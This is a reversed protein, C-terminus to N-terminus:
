SAVMHHIGDGDISVKGATVMTPIFSNNLIMTSLNPDSKINPDKWVEENFQAATKGNLITLAAETAVSGNPSAPAGTTGAVSVVEWVRGVIKPQIMQTPDNPDPYPPLTRDPGYEKDHIQLEMTTGICDVLEQNAPIKVALSEAFSGWASNKQNSIKISIEAVEFPFTEGEKVKIPVVEDFKLDIFTNSRSQGNNNFTAQRPAVALLRGRFRELPNTPFNGDQLGRIQTMARLAVNPDIDNTM